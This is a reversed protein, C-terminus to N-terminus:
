RGQYVWRNTPRRGLGSPLVRKEALSTGTRLNWPKPKDKGAKPLPVTVEIRRKPKDSNVKPKSQTRVSFERVPLAIPCCYLGANYSPIRHRIIPGKRPPRVTAAVPM